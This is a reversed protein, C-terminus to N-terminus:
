GCPEATGPRATYQAGYPFSYATYNLVPGGPNIPTAWVIILGYPVDTAWPVIQGDENIGMLTSPYGLDDLGDAYSKNNAFFQEQQATIRYLTEQATQRKARVVYETFSPYALSSVLGIIALVIMLEILTFGRALKCYNSMKNMNRAESNLEYIHRNSVANYIPMKLRWGSPELDVPRAPM